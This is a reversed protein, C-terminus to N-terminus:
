NLSLSRTSLATQVGVQEAGDLGVPTGAEARQVMVSNTNRSAVEILFRAKALENIEAFRPDEAQRRAAMQQFKEGAMGDVAYDSHDVKGEAVLADALVVVCDITESIKYFAETQDTLSAYFVAASLSYTPEMFTRTMEQQQEPHM